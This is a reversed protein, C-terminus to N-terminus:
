SELLLFFGSELLVFGAASELSIYFTESPPPDAQTSIPVLLIQSLAM